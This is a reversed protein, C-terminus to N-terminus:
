QYFDTPFLMNDHSLKCLGLGVTPCMWHLKYEIGAGFLILALPTTILSVAIAPLRMEPERLGGNRKTFYDAVKDSMQGGALVGVISGVIASVFCLGTQWTSFGYATAYAPAVNSSVAVLFGITVSMVLSGWFVPPLVVLALPRFFMSVLSESTYIESFLRMSQIYSERQIPEAVSDNKTIM